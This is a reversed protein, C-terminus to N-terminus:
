WPIVRALKWARINEAVASGTEAFLRVQSSDKLCPYIRQTLCQRKNAFVELISRDIFINLQLKEEPGLQLPLKQCATHAKEPPIEQASHHQIYRRYDGIREKSSRSVDIELEGNLEDFTILTQEEGDASCCVKVGYRRTGRSSIELCIELVHGEIGDLTVEPNAEVQTPIGKLEYDRLAQLEDAPEILVGYEPHPTLVRPLSLASGWGYEDAYGLRSKRAEMIWGIMIRRNRDDLLTEPAALQGGTWSMRGHSEPNFRNGNLSGLYYHVHYMPNHAHMLLMHQNGFPFFDPCACDENDCTWDRRSKYFPGIYQWDILNTSAFLSSCDGDHEPAFSRNGVLAFYQKGDYWGTPDFVTYELEESSLPIVPNQPLPAWEVLEPDESIAICIGQEPVYYILTPQPANEIADGSWIGRPTSGDLAPKLAPPHWVWHVLDRTSAHDWTEVWHEVGNEVPDPVPSRGLFFIHYRGNWYIMGNPDNFFGEPPVFHYLPRYPDVALKERLLRAHAIHKIMMNRM